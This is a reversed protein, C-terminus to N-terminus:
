IVMYTFVTVFNLIGYRLSTVRSELRDVKRRLDTKEDTLNRIEAKSTNRTEALSRDLEGVRRRLEEKEQLVEQL